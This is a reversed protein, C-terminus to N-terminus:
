EPLEKTKRGWNPDLMGGLPPGVNVNFQTNMQLQIEPRGYKMPESRELIWALSQWGPAGKEIRELRIMKRTAVASRVVDAFEEVEFWRSLTDTSIGAIAAAEVNTVGLAIANAIKETIQPTRKSPRGGPHPV